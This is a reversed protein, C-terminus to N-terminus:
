DDIRELWDGQQLGDSTWDMRSAPWGHVLERDPAPVSQAMGPLPQPPSQHGENGSQEYPTAEMGWRATFKVNSNIAIWQGKILAAPSVMVEAGRHELVLSPKGKWLCLTGLEPLGISLARTHAPPRLPSDVTPGTPVLPPNTDAQYRIPASEGTAPEATGLEDTEEIPRYRVAARGAGFKDVTTFGDRQVLGRRMLKNVTNEAMKQALNCRDKIVPLTAYQNVEWLSWITEMVKQDRGQLEGIAKFRAEKAICEDGSGHSIWHGTADDDVLEVVMSQGNLRGSSSILRRKDQQCIGDTVPMVWKMSTIVDVAGVLASSGSVSALGQGSKNEHHNVVTTVSLGALSRRLEYLPKVIEPRYEDLGLGSTVSRLTDLLLLSNSHQSCEERIQSCGSRNLQIQDGSTWLTVRPDLWSLFRYTEDYKALGERVLLKAWGGWDMDTGVIVAHDFRDLIPLGLCELEGRFVCGVLHILLASKGVKPAATILNMGGSLLLDGWLPIGGTLPIPEHEEEPAWGHVAPESEQADALLKVCSNLNIASFGLDLVEEYLLVARRYENQEPGQLIRGIAEDLKALREARLQGAPDSANQENNEEPPQNNKDPM